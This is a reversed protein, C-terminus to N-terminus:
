STATLEELPLKKPAFEIDETRKATIHGSNPPSGYIRPLPSLHTNSDYTWGTIPARFIIESINWAQGQLNQDYQFFCLKIYFVILSCLM